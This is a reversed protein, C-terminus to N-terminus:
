EIIQDESIIEDEKSSIDIIGAWETKEVWPTKVPATENVISTVRYYFPKDLKVAYPFRINYVYIDPYKPTFKVQTTVDGNGVGKAKIEVRKALLDPRLNNYFDYCRIELAAYAPPIQQNVDIKSLLETWKKTDIHIPFADALVCTQETKISDNTILEQIDRLIEKGGEGIVDNNFTTKGESFFAYNLSMVCQGNDLAAWLIEATKNDLRKTFERERWYNGKHNLGDKNEASLQGGPLNISDNNGITTLVLNTKIDTIPLPQLRVNNKDQRLQAKAKALKSAPYREMKVKFRVISKLRSTSQDGYVATGVYGTRLFNFDPKGDSDTVISLRGPLYYAVDSKQADFYCTIGAAEKKKTFDPQSFLMNSFFLLCFLPLIPKMDQLFITKINSKVRTDEM